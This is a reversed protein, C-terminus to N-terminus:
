EEWWESNQGGKKPDPVPVCVDVLERKARTVAVYALNREGEIDAKTKAWKSPQYRNRGLIFVRDWERGKARHITCLRVLDQGQYQGEGFTMEM